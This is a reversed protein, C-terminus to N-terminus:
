GVNGLGAQQAWVGCKELGWTEERNGRGLMRTSAGSHSESVGGGAKGVTRGWCDRHEQLFMLQIQPRGQPFGATTRPYPRARVQCELGVM